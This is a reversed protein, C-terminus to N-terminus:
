QAAMGCDAWSVIPWGIIFWCISFSCLDSMSGNLPIYLVHERDRLFQLGHYLWSCLMCYTNLACHPSRSATQPGVGVFSVSIQLLSCFSAWTVLAWSPFFLQAGLAFPGWHEGSNRRPEWEWPSPSLLSRTPTLFPLLTQGGGLLIPPLKVQHETDRWM